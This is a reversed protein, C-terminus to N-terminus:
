LSRSSSPESSAPWAASSAPSATGAYDDDVDDVNILTYESM